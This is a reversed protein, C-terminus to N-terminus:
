RRMTREGTVAHVLRCSRERMSGAGGRFAPEDEFDAHDGGAPEIRPLLEIVRDAMAAAIQANASETTHCYDIFVLGETGDFIGSLDHFAPESNLELSTQIKGYVARFM